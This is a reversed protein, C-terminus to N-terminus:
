PEETPESILFTHEHCPSKVMKEWLTQRESHAIVELDITGYAWLLLPGFGQWLAGPYAVNFRIM